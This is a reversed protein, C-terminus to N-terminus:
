DKAQNARFNTAGPANERGGSNSDVHQSLTEAKPAAGQPMLPPPQNLSVDSQKIIGADVLMKIVLPNGLDAGTLALNFKGVEPQPKPVQNPNLVAKAPDYGRLRALRKLIYSQNTLPSRAVVNWHQVALQFDRASDVQLASDPAIDYLYKGTVMQNNWMQMRKAGDTGTMEVYDEQDAYRMLLQDIMRAGDLYFDVVRSQEKGNRGQMNSQVNSSETASRVTDTFAGSANADIGLTQNVDTQILQQNRYDDQTQHVQGTPTVIKDVGNQLRGEGVGIYAGVDSSKLIKIEDVDFAGTDYLYKGIAADRLQISQRRWTSLQKIESNTFGSDAIPFSSDALDRITLVRIPFGMLSNKTLQGTTPDFEQDPSLRWVVPRDRIGEILVLQNIALPHVEDTFYSAKCYVEVGHVLGPSDNQKDDDYPHVRDDSAAKNAEDETLGFAKMSRKPSMYFEMGMWTADEDFRTSRLDDNWLAKKPSFRRWYWEEFVPVPVSGQPQPPATPGAAVGLTTMSTSQQPPVPPATPTVTKYVCRYGLKSAGVGAWALVDFLLEDILRNVKIGDRGLKKHLVEQKVAVIDDMTLPPLQQSPDMGMQNMPNPMQTNLLSPDDATLVLDPSRYFMQGIKSHVNRFHGMVKVTEAEGSKKIIPLYENLLIDWKEERAKVRARARDIRKWWENVEDEEMTSGEQGQLPILNPQGGRDMKTEISPGVDGPGAERREPESAKSLMSKITDLVGSFPSDM